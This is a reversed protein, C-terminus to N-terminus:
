SSEEHKSGVYRCLLLCCHLPTSSPAGSNGSALIMGPCGMSAALSWSLGQPPCVRVLLKTEPVGNESVPNACVCCKETHFGSTTQSTLKDLMPSASSTGRTRQGPAAFHQTFTVSQPEAPLVRTSASVFACPFITELLLLSPIDGPIQLIRAIPQPSPVWGAFCLLLLLIRLM